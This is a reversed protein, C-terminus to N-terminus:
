SGFWKTEDIPFKPESGLTSRGGKMQMSILNCYDMIRWRADVNHLQFM